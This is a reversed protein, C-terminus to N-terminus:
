VVASFDGDHLRSNLDFRLAVAQGSVQGKSLHMDGSLGTKEAPAAPRAISDVDLEILSKALNNVSIAAKASHASPGLINDLFGM